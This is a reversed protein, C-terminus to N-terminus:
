YIRSGNQSFLPCFALLGKLAKPVISPRAPMASPLDGFSTTKPPLAHPPRRVRIDPKFDPAVTLYKVDGHFEVPKPLCPSRVSQGPM